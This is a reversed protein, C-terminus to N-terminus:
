YYLEDFVRFALVDNGEVLVSVYDKFVFSIGLGNFLSEDLECGKFRDGDRLNRCEVKVFDVGRGRVFIDDIVVGGEGVFYSNFKCVNGINKRNLIYFYDREVVVFLNNGLELYNSFELNGLLVKLKTHLLYGDGRYGVLRYAVRKLVRRMVSVHMSEFTKRRFKYVGDDFMHVESLIENVYINLFELDDNYAERDVVMNKLKM